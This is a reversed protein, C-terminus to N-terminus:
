AAGTACGKDKLRRIQERQVTTTILQLGNMLRHEGLAVQCGYRKRDRVWPSASRVMVTGAFQRGGFTLIVRLLSGPEYETACMVALGSPSVDLVECGAESNVTARLDAGAVCVRFTTRQEVCEFARTISFRIHPRPTAQLFEIVRAPAAVFRRRVHSSIHMTVGVTPYILEEFEAVFSGPQSDIVM